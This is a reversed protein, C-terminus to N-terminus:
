DNIKAGCWACYGTHRIGEELQYDLVHGTMLWCLFQKLRKM